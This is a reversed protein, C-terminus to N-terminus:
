DVVKRRILLRAYCFKLLGDVNDATYYTGSVDDSIFCARTNAKSGNVTKGDKNHQLPNLYKKIPGIGFEYSGHTLGLIDFYSALNGDIYKSKLNVFQLDSPNYKDLFTIPVGMVGYYDIPIDSVKNVNIADYNDYNKYFSLSDKSPNGESNYYLKSLQLNNFEKKFSLNTYWCINGFNKFSGDPQMFQKVNNQGIWIQNNKLYPFFERYTIANKSGIILFKKNYNILLKIYERFLSFPPNTVVIDVEKLFDICEESSFDGNGILDTRVPEQNYKTLELKYAVKGTFGTYHTSILKKLGLEEFNM